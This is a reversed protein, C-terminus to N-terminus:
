TSAEGYAAQLFPVDVPEVLGVSVAHEIRGSRQPRSPTGPTGACEAAQEVIPSRVQPSAVLVRALKM